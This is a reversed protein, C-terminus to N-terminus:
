RGDLSNLEKPILCHLRHIWRFELGLRIETTSGKTITQHVFDLLHVEVDKM